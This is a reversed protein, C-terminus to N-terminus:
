SWSHYTMTMAPPFLDGVQSNIAFTIKADM